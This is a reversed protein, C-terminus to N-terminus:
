RLIKGKGGERQEDILQAQRGILAISAALNQAM